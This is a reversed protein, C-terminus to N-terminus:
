KEVLRLKRHKSSYKEPLLTPSPNHDTNLCPSYFSILEKEVADIDAIDDLILQIIPLQLAESKHEKIFHGFLSKDLLHKLIRDRLQQRTQGIYLSINEQKDYYIYLSTKSLRCKTLDGGSSVKPKSFDSPYSLRNDLTSTIAVWAIEAYNRKTGNSIFAQAERDNKDVSAGNVILARINEVNRSGDAGMIARSGASKAAGHYMLIEIVKSNDEDSGSAYELATAGYIDKRDVGAGGALLVKVTDAHGFAAAVMLGTRKEGDKARDPKMGATLFLDVVCTEGASAYDLLNSATLENKRDLSAGAALLVKVVDVHGRDLAEMLATTDNEKRNVSVGAALLVKVVDVHGRDVARMLAARGERVTRKLSAGASLVKVVDVHGRDVARILATRGERDTRKLSAGAALLVKVTDVHGQDAAGMLATRDERNKGRDPKMGAKLFLYVLWTKGEFAHDLLSLESFRYGMEELLSGGMSKDLEV